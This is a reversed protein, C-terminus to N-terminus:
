PKISEKIKEVLSRLGKQRSEPSTSLFLSAVPWAHIGGPEEKSSVNVSNSDLFEILGRVEPAFVEEAGYAFHIGGPPCAREWWSADGCNGPSILPDDTPVKKGAYQRAYHHLNGDELYDSATNRHKPSILTVWPSILVCLRPKALRWSGTGNMKDSDWDLNALHLLLSLIVAAGASDGSVCVRSPNQVIALVHNYGAIAEEVQTPFCSDPVLTYELAFIAPNTYGSEGLISLWTLLFELYFYSSGMAFGGGHAYYVCVDPKKMPDKIIWIGKFHKDQFEHWHAPTRIYGHRLMRFRIFPLAVAKLFFVRGVQPPIHAFAYRVCRIVFDEFPSAVQVFPGCLFPLCQLVVGVTKILGVHILLQPTLFCCFVICDIYSVPGLIM